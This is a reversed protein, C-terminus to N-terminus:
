IRTFTLFPDFLGHGVFCIGVPEPDIYSYTMLTLNNFTEEKQTLNVDAM